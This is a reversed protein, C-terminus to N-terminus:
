VLMARCAEPYLQEAEELSYPTVAVLEIRLADIAPAVEDALFDLFEYQKENPVGIVCISDDYEDALRTEPIITVLPYREHIAKEYAMFANHSIM